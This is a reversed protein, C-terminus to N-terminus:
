SQDRDNDAAYWQLDRTMYMTAAIAILSTIAGVLLAFDVMRMLVFLLIYVGGFLMLATITKQKGFVAGAYLGTLGVVATAAILFALDFGIHESFALLLLYFVSQALGILIYQAAHVPQRGTIEFLFFTLFVLGIFLLAYKLSRSVFQYPTSLDVFSVSMGNGARSLGNFTSLFTMTPLGSALAPVTRSGVFGADSIQKNDPLFAGSFGPHPWNAAIKIKTSKAFPIISIKKAGGLKFNVAIKLKEQQLLDGAPTSIIQGFQRQMKNSNNSPAMTGYLRDSSNQVLFNGAFPTFIQGQAAATSLSADSLAGRLDSVGVLIQAQEVLVKNSDNTLAIIGRLDFEAKFSLDSEYVQVTYISKSKTTVDIDALVEGTNAFILLTDEKSWIGEPDKSIIPIALVPGIITQEGGTAYAIENSTKNARESRDYVILFIFLTPITMILVLACVLILKLGPSKFNYKDNQPLSM